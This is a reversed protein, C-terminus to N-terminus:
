VLDWSAIDRHPNPKALGIRVVNGEFAGFSNQLVEFAVKMEEKSLKKAITTHPVWHFPQYYPSMKIGDTKELEGSIQVSMEHLYENLVPSLFIVYPFFQGVSVWELLGGQLKSVIRNFADIATQEDATEFASITIHPPVNGDLMFTNGTQEAVKNIYQQLKRNTKEDFYISILYM